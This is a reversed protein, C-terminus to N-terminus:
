IRGAHDSGRGVVRGLRVTALGPPQTRPVGPPRSFQVFRQAVKRRALITAIPTRSKTRRIPFRAWGGIRWCRDSVWLKARGGAEGLEGSASKFSADQSVRRTQFQQVEGIVQADAAKLGIEDNRCDLMLQSSGRARKFRIDTPPPFVIGVKGAVFIANM